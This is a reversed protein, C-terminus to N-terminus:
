ETWICYVSIAAAGAVAPTWLVISGSPPVILRDTGPFTWILGAGIAAPLHFRRLMATAAFGPATTFASMVLSAAGAPANPDESIGALATGGTGQSTARSLAVNTQTAAGLSVGLEEVLIRRAATNRLEAFAAGAAPAASTVGAAEYRNSM